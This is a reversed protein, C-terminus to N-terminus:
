KSNTADQITKNIQKLTSEDYRQDIPIPIMYKSLYAEFSDSSVESIVHNWWRGTYIQSEKLVTVTNSQEIVLPYVMPAIELDSFQTPNIKNIGSWLRHATEFNNHRIEKISQYDIGCLLTETLISMKKIGTADIRQENEQREAYINSCGYEIRKFLFSATDSSFDQKYDDVFLTAGTGIVYCGDPVGFFKRPSYVNLCNNLPQTFFAQSNDIIVRNFRKAANILKEEGLIGFYNVILIASDADITSIEPEFDMTLHYKRVEVGENLLYKAVSPCQYFPIYIKRVGYIQLAHFIGYRGANLRAIETSHFFEGTRRTDLEIFSGIEM